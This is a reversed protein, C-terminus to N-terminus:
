RDVVSHKDDGDDQQGSQSTTSAWGNMCDRLHMVEEGDGVFGQSCQQGGM